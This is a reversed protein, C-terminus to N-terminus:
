YSRLYGEATSTVGRLLLDAVIIVTVLVTLVAFIKTLISESREGTRTVFSIMRTIIYAGVMIGIEVIM